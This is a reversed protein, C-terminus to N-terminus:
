LPLGSQQQLQLIKYREIVYTFPCVSMQCSVTFLLMDNNRMKTEDTWRYCIHVEHQM